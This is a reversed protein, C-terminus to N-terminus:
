RTGYGKLNTLLVEKNVYVELNDLKGLPTREVMAKAGSQALVKLKRQTGQFTGMIRTLIAVEGSVLNSNASFNIVLDKRSYARNTLANELSRKFESIKSRSYDGYLFPGKDVVYQKKRIKM